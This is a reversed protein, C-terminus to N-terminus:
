FGLLRRIVSWAVDFLKGVLWGLSTSRLWELFGGKSSTATAQERERANGLIRRLQAEEDPTLDM